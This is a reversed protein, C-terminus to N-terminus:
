GEEKKKVVDQERRELAKEREKYAEYKLDVLARFVDVPFGSWVAVIGHLCPRSLVATRGGRTRYTEPKHDCVTACPEDNDPLDEFDHFTFKSDDFVLHRYWPCGLGPEVHEVKVKFHREVEAWTLSSM